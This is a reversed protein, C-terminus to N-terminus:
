LSLGFYICTVIGSSINTIDRFPAREEFASGNPDMGIRYFM